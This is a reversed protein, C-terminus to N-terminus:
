RDGPLNELCVITPPCSVLCPRRPFNLLVKFDETKVNAVTAMYTSILMHESPGAVEEWFLDALPMYLCCYDNFSHLFPRCLCCSASPLALLLESPRAVLGKNNLGVSTARTHSHNNRVMTACDIAGIAQM